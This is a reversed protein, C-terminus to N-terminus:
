QGVKLQGPRLTDSLSINSGYRELSLVSGFTVSEGFVSLM